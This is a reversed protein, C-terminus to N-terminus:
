LHYFLMLTHHINLTFYFYFLSVLFCFCSFFSIRYPLWILKYSISSLIFRLKERFIVDIYYYNIKDHHYQAYFKYKLM